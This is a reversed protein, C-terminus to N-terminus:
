IVFLVSILSRTPLAEPPQDSLFICKQDSMDMHNVDLCHITQTRQGTLLALVMVKFTLKLSLAEVLPYSRLHTLVQSVDWTTEYRPLSPKQELVGKLFRKVLPHTGFTASDSVVLITSIASRATNVGSYGVGSKVLEPLFNIAQAVTASVPSIGKSNCYNEWKSLYTQYQKKTENRWACMIIDSVAQSLGSAHLQQMCSNGSLQCILLDLKKHLPHVAQQHSPLLLLRANHLLLAPCSILMRM